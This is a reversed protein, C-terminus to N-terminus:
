ASQQWQQKTKNQAGDRHSCFVSGRFNVEMVIGAPAPLVVLRGGVIIVAPVNIQFWCFRIDIDHQGVSVDAVGRPIAKRFSFIRNKVSAIASCVTVAVPFDTVIGRLTGIKVAAARAVANM